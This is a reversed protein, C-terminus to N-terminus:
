SRRRRAGGEVTYPAPPVWSPRRDKWDAAAQSWQMGVPAARFTDPPVSAAASSPTSRVQGETAICNRLLYLRRISEPVHRVPRSAKRTSASLEAM